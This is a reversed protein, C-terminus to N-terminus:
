GQELTILFTTGVDVTSDVTITGNMSEIQNKTIFLGIGKAEKHIHFTKYMGFLKDGHRNLDIGLGNDKFEILVTSEKLISSISIIPKRTPSRYKLSNTYLNLLISELYAPVVKVNHSESVQIKTKADEKTLLGQISNEIHNLTSLLNMPKMNETSDTKVQVVDNLHQITESLSKTADLLMQNINKREEVDNEQSLFQTLMSMNSSNSRLNHSVIHAFNLLSDNQIKTVEVLSELKKEATKRSTIDLVQTVLHSIKGYIDRVVTVTVIAYVLSGNKHHYRKELQYSDRKGNITDQMLVISPTIDEVHTIDKFNTKSLEKETYGFSECLTKNVRIWQGDLGVLAMGIASNNFTDLFSENNRELELQTTKLETIDWNTGIMKLAKGQDDRETLAIAKINRISGDPWLIRFETDFAQKGTIANDLELRCREIDDPHLGNQWAEYVGSFDASDVGYLAYMNDDWLLKNETIEYEWIGINATKTAIRLREATEKYKLETKKKEDIDQFTGSIRICTGNVLEAEGKARVWVEKGKTTVIILETDWPKGDVLAENVLESILDRYFGEKYFNIGEAITPLYDSPVEHIIKTMPSWFVKNQALNVEWSGTKSVLEARLLLETNRKDETVDELMILVGFSKGEGLTIPNLKWKLWYTKGDPLIFSAGPNIQTRGQLSEELHQKFQEPSNQIIDLISEGQIETKDPTFTELFSNSYNVFRLDNDLIAIPYLSDKVILSIPITEM